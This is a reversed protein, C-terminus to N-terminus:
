KYREWQEKMAKKIKNYFDASIDNADELAALAYLIRKLNSKKYENNSATCQFRSSFFEWRKGCHECRIMAQDSLYEKSYSPCTAHYWRYTTEDECGAAPCASKFLIESM